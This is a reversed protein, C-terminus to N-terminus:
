STNHLMCCPVGDMRLLGDAPAQAQDGVGVKTAMVGLVCQRRVLQSRREAPIESTSWMEESKRVRLVASLRGTEGCGEWVRRRSGVGGQRTGEGSACVDGLRSFTACRFRQVADGSSAVPRIFCGTGEV